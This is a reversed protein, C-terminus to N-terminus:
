VAVTPNSYTATSIGRIVIITTGDGNAHLSLGPIEAFYDQLRTQNREVLDTTDIATVPVPVDQLREQRKQATVVIETLSTSQSSEEAAFASSGMCFMLVAFLTARGAAASGCFDITSGNLTTAVAYPSKDNGNMLEDRQFMLKTHADQASM